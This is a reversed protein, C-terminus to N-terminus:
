DVVLNGRIRYLLRMLTQQEDESLGEILDENMAVAIKKMRRMLSEAKATRFVCRARKDDPHPRRKLWGNAGLRDLLPGIAAKTFGLEAALESQTVGEHFYLKALVWWQARTLGIESMRQDYEHNIYRSLEHILYGPTKSFDPNTM